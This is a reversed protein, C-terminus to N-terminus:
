RYIDKRNGVEVVTVVLVDDQITYLIRYDGQRLRYQERGSLRKAQPPRPDDAKSVTGDPGLIRALTDWANLSEDTCLSPYLCQLPTWGHGNITVSKRGSLHAFLGILNCDLYREDAEAAKLALDCRDLRACTGDITVAVTESLPM